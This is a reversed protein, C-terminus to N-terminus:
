VKSLGEEIQEMTAVVFQTLQVPHGGILLDGGARSLDLEFERGRTSDGLARVENRELLLGRCEDAVELQVEFGM